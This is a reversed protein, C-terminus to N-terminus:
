ATGLNIPFDFLMSIEARGTIDAQLSQIFTLDIYFLCIHRKRLNSVLNPKATKTIVRTAKRPLITERRRADSSRLYMKRREKQM